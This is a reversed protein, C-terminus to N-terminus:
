PQQAINIEEQEEIIKKMEEQREAMLQERGEPELSWRRKLVM